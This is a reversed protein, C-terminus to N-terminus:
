APHIAPFSLDGIPLLSQHGGDPRQLIVHVAPPRPLPARRHVVIGLADNAQVVRCEFVRSRPISVFIRSAYGEALPDRVRPAVQQRRGISPRSAMALANSGGMLPSNPDSMSKVSSDVRCATLANMTSVMRQIGDAPTSRSM